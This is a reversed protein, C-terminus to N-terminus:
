NATPHTSPLRKQKEEPPESEPAAHSEEWLGLHQLIKKIVYPQDIFSVIRMEGHCQPCIFPDTEHVKRIFYSWRKKLEGSSAPADIESIETKEEHKDKKRKWSESTRVPRSSFQDESGRPVSFLWPLEINEYSIPNALVLNEM